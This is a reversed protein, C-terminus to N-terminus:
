TSVADWDLQFPCRALPMGTLYASRVAGQEEEEEEVDSLNATQETRM